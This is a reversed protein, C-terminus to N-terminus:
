RRSGFIPKRELTLGVRASIVSSVSARSAAFPPPATSRAASLAALATGAPMSRTFIMRDPLIAAATGPLPRPRAHRWRLPRRDSRTVAHGGGAGIRDRSETLGRALGLDAM